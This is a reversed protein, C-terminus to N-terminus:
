AHNIGGMPVGGDTSRFLGFTAARPLLQAGFLFWGSGPSYWRAGPNCWLVAASYASSSAAVTAPVNVTARDVRSPPPLLTLKLSARVAPLGCVIQPVSHPHPIAQSNPTPTM